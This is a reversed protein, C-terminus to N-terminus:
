VRRFEACDPGADFAQGSIFQKVPTYDKGVKLKAAGFDWVGFIRRSTVTSENIGFEFRGSINEAKVTAGLRSNGQLNWQVEADKDDTGAANEGDGFDRSNYFTAMRASGYFNWDVALAPSAMLALAAIILILKKM